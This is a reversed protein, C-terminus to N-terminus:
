KPLVGSAACPAALAPQDQLIPDTLESAAFPSALALGVECAHHRLAKADQAFALWALDWVEAM